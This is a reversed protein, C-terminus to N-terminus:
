IIKKIIINQINNFYITKFNKEELVFITVLDNNQRKLNTNYGIKFTFYKEILNKNLTVQEFIRLSGDKKLYEIEVIVKKLNKKFEEPTNFTFNEKNKKKKLLKLEELLEKEKKLLEIKRELKEIKKTIKKLKKM